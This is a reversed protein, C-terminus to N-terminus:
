KGQYTYLIEYAGEVSFGQSSLGRAMSCSSGGYLVYRTDFNIDSPDTFTYLDSMPISYSDEKSTGTLEEGEEATPELPEEQQQDSDQLWEGGSVTSTNVDAPQDQDSPQINLLVVCLVVGIVVIVAAIACLLVIKKKKEM